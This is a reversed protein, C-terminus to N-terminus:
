DCYKTSIQKKSQLISNWDFTEPTVKTSSKSKLTWSTPIVNLLSFHGYNDQFNLFVMSRTGSLKHSLVTRYYSMPLLPQLVNNASLLPKLNAFQQKLLFEVSDCRNWDFIREKNLPAAFKRTDSWKKRLGNEDSWVVKKSTKETIQSKKSGSTNNVKNKLNM